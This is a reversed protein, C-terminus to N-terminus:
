LQTVTMFKFAEAAVTQRSGLYFKSLGVRSDNEGSLKFNPTAVQSSEM